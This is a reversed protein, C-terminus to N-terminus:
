GRERRGTKARNAIRDIPRRVVAPPFSGNLPVPGGEGYSRRLPLTAPTSTFEKAGGGGEPPYRGGAERRPRPFQDGIEFRFTDPGKVPMEIAAFHTQGVAAGIGVDHDQMPGLTFGDIRTIRCVSVASERIEARPVARVQNKAPTLAV